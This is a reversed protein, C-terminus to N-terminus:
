GGPRGAAEHARLAQAAASRVFENPDELASQLVPLVEPDELGGLAHAAQVRIQWEPDEVLIRSLEAKAQGPELAGLGTVAALRVPAEPDALGAALGGLAVDGGLQALAEAARRRVQPAPDSRLHWVLSEAHRTDGLEGLLAAATARVFADPDDLGSRALAGSDAAHSGVLATLATARTDRDPDTLLARIRQLNEETPRAQLEYISNRRENQDHGCHVAGCLIAPFLLCLRRRVRMFNHTAPRSMSRGASLM